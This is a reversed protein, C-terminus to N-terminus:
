YEIELMKSLAFYHDEFCETEILHLEDIHFWRVEILDDAAEVNPVEDLDLEFLFLKSIIRGRLSRHPHDLDYTGGLCSNLYEEDIDLNRLIISTEENLERIAGDILLEFENLYGGPICWLGQGPFNKRRGLLVKDECMVLADVTQFIVPYPSNDWVAKIENLKQYELAVYEYDKTTAWDRLYEFVKPYVNQELDRVEDRSRMSFYIDRLKSANILIDSEVKEYSWCDFESLYKTDTKEHGVLAISGHWSACDLGHKKAYNYVHSRVQSSWVEIDYYDRIAIFQTKDNESASLTLRIMEEREDANFPNKPDRAKYASGLIILVSDAVELAKQIILNHGNHPIQFRGIVVALEYSM